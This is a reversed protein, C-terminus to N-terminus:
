SKNTMNMGTLIHRSVRLFPLYVYLIYGPIEQSHPAILKQTPTTVFSILSAVARFAWIVKPPYLLLPDTVSTKLGIKPEVGVELEKGENSCLPCQYLACLFQFLNWKKIFRGWFVNQKTTENRESRKSHEM